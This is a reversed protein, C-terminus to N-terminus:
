FDVWRRLESRLQSLNIPKTLYGKMGAGFCRERDQPTAHATLAVIPFRSLTGLRQLELLQRTAEIGDVLPMQLDMLLLDPAHERCADIAEAGDCALRAGFGLTAVMEAIILQNVPNDEAILIDFRRPEGEDLDIFGSDSPKASRGQLVTLDLLAGPTLPMFVLPMDNARAAAELPPQNWDPRVLLVIPTDPLQARLTDLALASDLAAEALVILDPAPEGTEALRAARALLAPIGAVVRGTWGLRQLRQALWEGPVPLTYVLWAVGPEPQRSMPQEGAQMQLPLRLTFRTGNGPATVLELSGGISETLGRAISLGLGTGGHRRALSEDGQVFPEFVRAAIEATMGPGTDILEVTAECRGAGRPLVEARLAVHGRETYKVANTLLNATIQQLRQEDGVVRTVPGVYDYMMGLGKVRAQPMVRRLSTALSEALDFSELRPPAGGANLRSFDLVGNLMDLLGAGSQLALKLYRRQQSSRAERLALENLGLLGNLPTRIEHSMHALFTSKAANAREAAEQQRQAEALAQELSATREDVVQQLQARHQMLEESALRQEHIDGILGTLRARGDGLLETRGRGQFWRYSGDALRLRYDCRWPGPSVEARATSEHLRALDDPHVWEMFQERTPPLGDPAHGLLTNIQPSIYFRGDTLSREFQVELSASMARTFREALHELGLQAQKEADVDSFTGILRRARGDSGAWARGHVRAWRVSGDRHQYRLDVTFAALEAVAQRLRRDFGDRDDDHVWQRLGKCASAPGAGLLDILAPSFWHEDVGLDHEWFAADSGVVLRFARRLEALDAHAARDDLRDTAAGPRPPDSSASASRNAPPNDAM